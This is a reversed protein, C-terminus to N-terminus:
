PMLGTSSASRAPRTRAAARRAARRDGRRPLAQRERARLPTPSRARRRPPARARPARRRAGPSRRPPRPAARSCGRPARRRPPAPRAAGRRARRRDLIRVVDARNQPRTSAAPACPTTRCARCAAASSPTTPWPTPPRPRARASRWRRSCRAPARSNFASPTQVTPSAAVRRLAVVLDIQRQRRRDHEAGLAGPQPPQHPLAAVPQGRNRHVSRDVAQVHRDRCSHHQELRHPLSLRALIGLSYARRSEPSSAASSRKM